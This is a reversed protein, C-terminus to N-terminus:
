EDAKGGYSMNFTVGEGPTIEQQVKDGYKKSKLKSAIWKRSDIRLRAHAVTSSDTVMVPKGNVIVPKGDEVLPQSAENDAIDVIEDAWSEASEEKAIEYQKRFEEKERLWRFMTTMAPMAYDRTVSRMSEGQAIRSCIEDSLELTYDTPRGGKNKAKEKAM